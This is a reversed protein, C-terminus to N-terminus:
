KVPESYLNGPSRRWDQGEGQDQHLKIVRGDSRRFTTYVNLWAQVYYTGSPLDRLSRVPHGFATEDVVAPTGPGPKWDDVNMGFVPTGTPGPRFKGNSSVLLLLRGSAAESRVAPDITVEFSTGRRPPAGSGARSGSDSGACSGAGPGPAAAAFLLLAVIALVSLAPIVTAPIHRASSVKM